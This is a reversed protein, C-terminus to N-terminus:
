EPSVHSLSPLQRWISCVHRLRPEVLSTWRDASGAPLGRAARWDRAVTKEGGCRVQLRGDFVGGSGAPRAMRGGDRYISVRGGPKAVLWAGGVTRSTDAGSVLAHLAPALMSERPMQAKGAAAQVLWGLLRLAREESIPGPDFDMSTDPYFTVHTDIASALHAQEAQRLAALRPLMRGIRKRVMADERLRNRMRVREYDENENTPDDIWEQGRWALWDRLVQRTEGLLPRVLTLGQGEPWAPSPSLRDMAGLGYWGSGRGARILFTELQDDHTHGLLLQNLGNGACARALLAHRANRARRASPSGLDAGIRDCPWGLRDSMAAVFRADGASDARLGHDVTLVHLCRGRERAWETALILMAVSDGGGSVALAITDNLPQPREQDIWADLWAHVRRSLHRVDRDATM